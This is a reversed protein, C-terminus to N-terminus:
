GGILRAVLRAAFYLMLAGTAARTVIEWTPTAFRAGMRVASCLVLGWLAAAAVVAGALALSRALTLAAGSQQGIVALWFAINWPSSLAMGLGLLFGGRTSDLAGAPPEAEGRRMRRWSRWAGALFSWALFILLVLSVGALTPRVGPLDAIAGAGLAV